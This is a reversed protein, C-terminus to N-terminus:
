EIIVLQNPYDYKLNEAEGFENDTNHLRFKLWLTNMLSKILNALIDIEAEEEVTHETRKRTSATKTAAKLIDKRGVNDKQLLEQRTKDIYDLDLGLLVALAEEFFRIEKYGEQFWKPAEKSKILKM